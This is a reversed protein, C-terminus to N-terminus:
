LTINTINIAFRRPSSTMLNTFQHCLMGSYECDTPDIVYDEVIRPHKDDDAVIDVMEDLNPDYYAFVNLTNLDPLGAPAAM